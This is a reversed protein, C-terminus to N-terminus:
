KINMMQDNQKPIIKYLEIVYNLKNLRTQGLLSVFGTNHIRVPDSYIRILIRGLNNVTLAKM